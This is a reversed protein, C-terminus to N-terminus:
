EFLNIKTSRRKIDDDVLIVNELRKNTKFEFSPLKSIDVVPNCQFTSYLNFLGAKESFSSIVEGNALLHPMNPAKKNNNNNQTLTSFNFM